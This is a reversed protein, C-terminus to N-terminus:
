GIVGPMGLARRLDTMQGAHIGNHFMIRTALEDIRMEGKGWPQIESLRADDLSALATALRDLAAEFVARGRDLTPYIAPEDTPRSGINVSETDYRKQDGRRGDGTLYDSEPLGKGDFREAFRHMTLALHGLTWAAHNPLSPAQRTRNGEDFGAMFRTFLPGSTRLASSLAKSKEGM